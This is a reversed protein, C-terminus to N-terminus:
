FDDEGKWLRLKRKRQAMFCTYWNISKSKWSKLIFMLIKKKKFSYGFESPTVHKYFFIGGSSINSKASTSNAWVTKKKLFCKVKGLDIELM